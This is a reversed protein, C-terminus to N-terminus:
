LQQYNQTSSCLPFTQLSQCPLYQDDMCDSPSIRRSRDRRNSRYLLSTTRQTDSHRQVSSCRVVTFNTPPGIRGNVPRLVTYERSSHPSNTQAIKRLDCTSVENCGACFKLKPIIKRCVACESTGPSLPLYVQRLADDIHPVSM